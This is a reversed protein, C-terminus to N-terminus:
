SLLGGMEVFDSRGKAGDAMCVQLKSVLVPDGKPVRVKHLAGPGAPAPGCLCTLGLQGPAPQISPGQLLLAQRFCLDSSQGAQVCPLAEAVTSCPASFSSVASLQIWM